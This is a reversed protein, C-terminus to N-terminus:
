SVYNDGFFHRENRKADEDLIMKMADQVNTFANEYGEMRLAEEEELFLDDDVILESHALTHMDYQFTSYRQAMSLVQVHIHDYAKKWYWSLYVAVGAIAGLLAVYLSAATM